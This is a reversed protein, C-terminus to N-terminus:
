RNVLTVIDKEHVFIYEIGNRKVESGSYKSYVVRDGIKVHMPVVGKETELGPGIAVVTGEQPKEKATDPIYVGGPSVEAQEAPEICVYDGLPKFEVKTATPAM